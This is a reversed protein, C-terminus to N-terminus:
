HAKNNKAEEDQKILYEAILKELNYNCNVSIDNFQGVPNVELFYFKGEKSKVIDIVGTQLNSKKMFRVISEKHIKPIEFPIRRNPREVNYKKHDIVTKSDLQSFIAMSYIQENLYFVRLEFEKDIEEQFMSPAFFDPLNEILKNDVRSTYSVYLDNNFAIEIIGDIPKTIVKEKKDVFDLLHDKNNTIITEPINLGSEKALKLQKTKEIKTDFPHNLWKLEKLSEFFINSFFHLEHATNRKVDKHINEHIDLDWRRCWAINIDQFLTNTITNNSININIPISGLFSRSKLVLFDSKYFNLWDVVIDTTKDGDESLILIM